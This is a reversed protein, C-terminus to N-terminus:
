QINQFELYAVDELKRQSFVPVSSAYTASENTSVPAQESYTSRFVTEQEESQMHAAHDDYLCEILSEQQKTELGRETAVPSSTNRKQKEQGLSPLIYAPELARSASAAVSSKLLRPRPSVPAAAADAASAHEIYHLAPEVLARSAAQPADVDFM